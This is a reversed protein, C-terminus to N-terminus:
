VAFSITFCLPITAQFFSIIIMLILSVFASTMRKVNKTTTKNGNRVGMQIFYTPDKSRKDYYLKM